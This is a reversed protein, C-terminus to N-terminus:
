VHGLIVMFAEVWIISSTHDHFIYMLTKQYNFITSNFIIESKKRIVLSFTLFVVCFFFAVHSTTLLPFFFQPDMGGDSVVQWTTPQLLFQIIKQLGLMTRVELWFLSRKKRKEKKM